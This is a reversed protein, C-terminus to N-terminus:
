EAAKKTIEYFIPVSHWDIAVNDVAESYGGQVSAYWLPIAPLDQFLIEQAQQFYGNAEDTSTAAAGKDLLDDFAPNSYDGDNSGAGTGYIPGLFNFLSPYDAQWGTRFATEISRDTVASRLEAFTAFPEGSSEIGLVNKISNTTADVWAGHSSDGNYALKFEGDWPSIADAQAWLEVAKDPDFDLVDSGPVTESYGDIVPSTFDHAPTRTGNFIVDTIEARNIAHSIAARRLQGEEGDFHPLRGPITFSQFIAAPQDIARDGLEDKFTRLSEDPIQDIVDLNGSLLDAYAATVETYFKFQVGGNKPARPGDYTESKVVTLSEQHVWEELQYPGNGVPKQGFGEVDAFFAEPLPYFASYGVRLPWDAEAQNLHVEFTTDDVLVLGGEEVLSAREVVDETGPDDYVFGKIDDFFYSNLTANQADAVWDWAKVFSEANVPTGDTFKLGSRIKVTYDQANDSTISEAVDNIAAGSADYYVLGAFISDVIKGGGTENTNGPILPNQPESGLATIIEDNGQEEGGGGAACGSLVLASAVAVSGAAAAIGRIRM